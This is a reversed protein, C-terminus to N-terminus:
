PLTFQGLSIHYKTKGGKIRQRKVKIYVFRTAVRIQPAAPQPARWQEISYRTRMLDNM